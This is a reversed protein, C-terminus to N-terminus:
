FELGKSRASSSFEAICGHYLRERRDLVVKKVGKAAAREAILEGLKRAGEKNKTNKKGFSKESTSASCLTLGKEDDILQTHIYTNSRVFALRM